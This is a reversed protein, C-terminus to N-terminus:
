TEGHIARSVQQYYPLYPWSGSLRVVVRRWGGGRAARAGGVPARRRRANAQRPRPPPSAAPPEAAVGPQPLAGRQRLRVLLNLAASHLYLRFYNALFRHDSLRDGALGRKLEKNRNESEGRQIYDDYAAEPYLAAGPRNTVTFRRNTGHPTAEARVVVQRPHPGSGAQYRSRDFRRQP